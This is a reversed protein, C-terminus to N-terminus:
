QLTETGSQLLFNLILNNTLWEIPARDDTFVISQQPPPQLTAWTLSMSEILLPHVDGRQVFRTLNAYLDDASTPRLTAYMLSNFTNPIDM